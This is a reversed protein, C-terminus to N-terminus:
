LITAQFSAQIWPKPWSMSQYWEELVEFVELYAEPEWSQRLTQILLIIPRYSMLSSFVYKLLDSTFLSSYKSIHKRSIFAFFFFLKNLIVKSSSFQWFSDKQLFSFNVHAKMLNFSWININVIFSVCLWQSKWLFVFCFM